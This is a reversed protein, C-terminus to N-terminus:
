NEEEKKIKRIFKPKPKEEEVKYTGILNKTYHKVGYVDLEKILFINGNEKVIKEM